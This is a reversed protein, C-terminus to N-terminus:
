HSTNIHFDFVKGVYSLHILIAISLHDTFMTFVIKKGRGLCKQIQVSSPFSCSVKLINYYKQVYPVCLCFM